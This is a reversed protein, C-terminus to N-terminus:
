NTIQVLRRKHLNIIQQTIESENVTISQKPALWVTTFGPGSNIVVSLGQVSNNKVVKQAQDMNVPSKVQAKDKM